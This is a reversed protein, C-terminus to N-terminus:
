DDNGMKTLEKIVAERFKIAEDMTYNDFIADYSSENDEKFGHAMEMNVLGGGFDVVTTIVAKFVEDEDDWGAKRILVQGGDPLDYIKCFKM